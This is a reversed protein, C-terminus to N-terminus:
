LLERCESVVRPLRGACLMVSEEIEGEYQQNCTDHSVANVTAELLFQSGFSSDESTVGFGMVSLEDNTAPVASNM